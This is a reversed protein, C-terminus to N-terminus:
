DIRFVTIDGCTYPTSEQAAVSGLALACNDTSSPNANDPADHDLVMLYSGSTDVIMRFPNLGQTYFTEQPTLSGNGGM